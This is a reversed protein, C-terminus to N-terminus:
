ATKNKKVLQYAVDLLLQQSKQINLQKAQPISTLFSELVYNEIVQKDPYHQDTEAAYCLQFFDPYPFPYGPMKPSLHRFHAFGFYIPNKISWGTEEMLERALTQMVSENEERQGGPFIHYSDESERVVVVQDGQLVIARVSTVLPLPPMKDALYFTIELSLDGWVATEVVLPTYNALFTKLENNM